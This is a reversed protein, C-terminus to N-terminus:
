VTVELESQFKALMRKFKQQIAQRSVGLVEAIEQHTYDMMKLKVMQKEKENLKSLLSNLKMSAFVESEIDDSGFNNINDTAIIEYYDDTEESDKYPKNSLSLLTVQKNEHKTKNFKWKYHSTVLGERDMGRHIAWKINRIAYNRFIGLQKQEWTRCANLLGIRGFSLLDDKELGRSIAIKSPNAFMKSVTIKVLYEYEEFLLEEANM